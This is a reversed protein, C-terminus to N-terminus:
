SPPCGSVQEGNLLATLDYPVHDKLGAIWAQTTTPGDPFKHKDSRGPLWSKKKTVKASTPTPSRAPSASSVGPILLNPTQPRSVSGAQSHPSTDRSATRSDPGYRQGSSPPQPVTDTLFPPPQLPSIDNAFDVDSSATFRHKHLKNGSPSAYDPSHPYQPSDTPHPDPTQPRGDRSLTFLSSIRKTM